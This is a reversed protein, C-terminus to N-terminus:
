VVSKRDTLGGSYPWTDLALDVDCYRAMLELNESGGEIVLREKAVGRRALEGMLRGRVEPQDLGAYKLLLQAGPVRGLIVAWADLLPPSYKAPNNFCGLTVRDTQLAPLPSVDPVKPPPGYCAYDGPMRLVTESYWREEGPRIHFRDALLGDMAVLGTTGVYGLWTVQLPAPRLAFALLRRGVHGGLDILVDIDDRRVQAALEEDTLGITARWDDAAARFRVTYEDEWTRDSYCVVSCQAKDLCEIARLALFGTPGGSFDLGVLGVRLRSNPARGAAAPPAIPLLPHAYADDWARHAQLLQEPTTAASYHLAVLLKSHTTPNPALEVSRRMADIAEGIRAQAQLAGGLVTWADADRPNESVLRRTLAEAEHYALRQLLLLALNYRADRDGPAIRLAQRYAAEAEGLRDRLREANGLVLWAPLLQPARALVGQILEIGREIQGRQIQLLAYRTAAHLDNPALRLSQEYAAQAADLRSLSHEAAGLNTWVEANSANRQLAQQYAQSADSWRQQDFLCNGLAAWYEAADDLALATRAAAEAESAKAQMRLSLSLTNWYRADGSNLAIARRLAAEGEAPKGQAVALFGLWAWAQHSHPEGALLERCAAQAADLLGLRALEEIRAIAERM